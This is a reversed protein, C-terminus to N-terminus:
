AVHLAPGIAAGVFIATAFLSAAISLVTHQLSTFTM